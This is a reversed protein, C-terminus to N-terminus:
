AAESFGEFLSIPSHVPLFNKDVMWVFTTATGTSIEHVTDEMGAPILARVWAESVAPPLQYGEPNTIRVAILYAPERTEGFGRIRARARPGVRHRTISMNLATAGATAPLYKQPPRWTPTPRALSRPHHIVTQIASVTDAHNELIQQTLDFPTLTSRQFITHKKMVRISLNAM